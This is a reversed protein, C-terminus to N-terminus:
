SDAVTRRAVSAASRTRGLLAFWLPNLMISLLAGAV